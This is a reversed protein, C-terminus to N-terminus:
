SKEKIPVFGHYDAGSWFYVFHTSPYKHHIIFTINEAEVSHEYLPWGWVYMFMEGWLVQDPKLSVTGTHEM